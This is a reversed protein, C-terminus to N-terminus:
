SCPCPPWPRFIEQAAKVLTIEGSLSDYYYVRSTFEWLERIWGTRMSNTSIINSVNRAYMLDLMVDIVLNIPQPNQQPNSPDFQNSVLVVFEGEAELSIGGFLLGEPHGPAPRGFPSERHGNCYWTERSDYTLVLKPTGAEIYDGAQQVLANLADQDDGSIVVIKGVDFGLAEDLFEQITM